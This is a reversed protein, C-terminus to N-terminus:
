ILTNNLAYDKAAEFFRRGQEVMGDPSTFHTGDTLPIDATSFYHGGKYYDSYAPYDTLFDDVAAQLDQIIDDRYDRSPSFPNDILSVFVHADIQEPEIVGDAVLLDIQDLIQKIVQQFDHKCNANGVQADAEAGRWLFGKYIPRFGYKFKTYKVAYYVANKANFLMENTSASNWDQGSPDEFLPTGGTAYKALFINRGIYESMLYSFEDDPGLATTGATNLLRAEFKYTSNVAGTRMNGYYGHESGYKSPITGVQHGAMNSQGHASYILADGRIDLDESGALLYANIYSLQSSDPIIDLLLVHKVLGDVMYNAGYFMQLDQFHNSTSNPYANNTSSIETGDRYVKLTTGDYTIVLSHMTSLTFFNDLVVNQPPQGGVGRNISVVLAMSRSQAARNDYNCVIGVNGTSTSTSCLQYTLDISNYIGIRMAICFSSGDHLFKFTTKDAAKAYGASAPFYMMLGNFCPVGSNQKTLTMAYSDNTTINGLESGFLGTPNKGDSTRGNIWLRLNSNFVDLPSSLEDAALFSRPNNRATTIIYKESGPDGAYEFVRVYYTEGLSLGTVNFTSGSDNYVVYGDGIDSGFGFIPNALYSTGDTPLDEVPAGERMVVLRRTGVGKTFSITATNETVNTFVLDYAQAIKQSLLAHFFSM